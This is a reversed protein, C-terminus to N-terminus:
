HSNQYAARVPQAAANAEIEQKQQLKRKRAKSNSPIEFGYKEYHMWTALFAPLVIAGVAFQEYLAVAQRIGEAVRANMQARMLFASVMINIEADDIASWIEVPPHGPTTLQIFEDAAKFFGVFAQHFKERMSKAETANMPSATTKVPEPKEKKRPTLIADVLSKANRRNNGQTDKSDQDPGRDALEDTLDDRGNGRHVNRNIGQGNQIGATTGTYGSVVDGYESQDGETYEVSTEISNRAGSTYGTAGDPQHIGHNRNYEKRIRELNSPRGRKGPGAM